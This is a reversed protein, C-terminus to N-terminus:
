RYALWRQEPRAQPAPEWDLASDVVRRMKEFWWGARRSRAPKRPSTRLTGNFGLEMQQIHTTKM